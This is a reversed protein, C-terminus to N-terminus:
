LLFGHIHSHIDDHFGKEAGLGGLLILSGVPYTVRRVPNAAKLPTLRFRWPHYKRKAQVLHALTLAKEFIALYWVFVLTIVNASDTAEREFSTEAFVPM